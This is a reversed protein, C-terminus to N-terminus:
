KYSPILNWYADNTIVEVGVRRDGERANDSGSPAVFAITKGVGRTKLINSPVGRDILAQVTAEARRESLAINYSQSGRSDTYGIILYHKTNNRTMYAAIDDLVKASEPTIASKGFDFYINNFLECFMDDREKIVEIVEPEKNKADALQRRLDNLEKENYINTIVDYNRDWERPKFKYALGISASAVYDARGLNGGNLDKKHSFHGNVVSGKLDLTLDLADGLRFTNLIGGVAAIEKEHGLEIGPVQNSPMKVSWMLGLGAHPIFNYFRNPKYGFLINTLNFLAEGNFNAYEIEQEYYPIGDADTYEKGTNYWQEVGNYITAGKAKSWDAGVRVGIGPTFWKGIQVNATPTIRKSLSFKSDYEGFYVQGGGGVGIIWNHFFGNTIVKYKDSFEETEVITRQSQACLSGFFSLGIILSMFKNQNM